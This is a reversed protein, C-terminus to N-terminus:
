SCVGDPQIARLGRYSVTRNFPCSSTSLMVAVSNPGCNFLLDVASLHSVFGHSVQDYTPHVYDQYALSIGARAILAEDLYSKAGNTSIYADAKLERCIAVIRETKHGGASLASSRVVKSSIGFVQQFHSIISLDLDILRTWNRHYIEEFFNINEKFCRAKAYHQKLSVLHKRPWNAKNDIRVQDIQQGLKVMVPVTLWIPGQPGLIRNRNRWSNKDYQVDDYIVFVDCRAMLEFFGVYPLYGPQLISVVRSFGQKMSEWEAM